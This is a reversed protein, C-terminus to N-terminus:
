IPALLLSFCLYLGSDPLLAAKFSVFVEQGQLLWLGQSHCVARQTSPKPANQQNTKATSSWEIKQAEEANLFSVDGPNKGTEELM